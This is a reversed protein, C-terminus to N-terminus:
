LHNPKKHFKSKRPLNAPNKTFDYDVKIFKISINPDTKLNSIENPKYIPPFDSYVYNAERLDDTIKIVLRDLKDNITHNETIETTTKQASNFVRFLATSILALIILVIMLEIITVGKKM